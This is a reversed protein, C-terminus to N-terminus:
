RAGQIRLMLSPSGSILCAAVLDLANIFMQPFCHFYSQKKRATECRGLGHDLKVDELM